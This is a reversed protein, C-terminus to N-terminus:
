RRLAAVATPLLLGLPGPLLAHTVADVLLHRAVQSSFGDKGSVPKEAVDNWVPHDADDRDAAALAQAMQPLLAERQIATEDFRVLMRGTRFNVAAEQVGDLGALQRELCRCAQPRGTLQPAELRIRGPLISLPAM